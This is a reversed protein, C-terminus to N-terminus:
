CKDSAEAVIKCFISKIDISGLGVELKDSKPQLACVKGGDLLPFM